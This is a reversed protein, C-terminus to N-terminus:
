AFVPVVRKLWTSVVRRSVHVSSHRFCPQFFSTRNDVVDVVDFGVVADGVQLPASSAMVDQATVCRVPVVFGFKGLLVFGRDNLLVM